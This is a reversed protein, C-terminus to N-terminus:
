ETSIKVIKYVAIVNAVTRNYNATYHNIYSTGLVYKKRINM